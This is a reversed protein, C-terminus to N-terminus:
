TVDVLRGVDANDRPYEDFTTRPRGTLDAVATTASALSGGAVPQRGSSRAGPVWRM